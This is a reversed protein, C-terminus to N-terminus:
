LKSDMQFIYSIKINLPFQPYIRGPYNPGKFYFFQEWRLKLISKEKKFYFIENLEEISFNIKTIDLYIFNPFGGNWDCVCIYM